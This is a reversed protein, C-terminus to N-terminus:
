RDRSPNLPLHEALFQRLGEEYVPGSTLFGSNHDGTIELFMKPERATEFLRQGHNFPILEDQRSHIVLVPSSVQRLNGITNYDFRSLLRVPLFPYHHAGVDALSTFSAELILAASPHRSALWAAVAGGLSQGYIVVQNAQVGRQEALYRWAAEADLYTGQESPRGASQGYGRYDFLLTQLGLRHFIDLYPLRHSINGANGHCFLVVARAQSAPVFWASLRVGDSTQFSVAEYELGSQDPTAALQPQPFYVLRSQFLVAM